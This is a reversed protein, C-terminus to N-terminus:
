EKPFRRLTGHVVEVWETATRPKLEVWYPGMAKARARASDDRLLDRYRQYIQPGTMGDLVPVKKGAVEDAAKRVSEGRLRPGSLADLIESDRSATKPPTGLPPEEEPVVFVAVDGADRGLVPLGPSRAVAAVLSLIRSWEDSSTFPPKPLDRLLIGTHKRRSPM